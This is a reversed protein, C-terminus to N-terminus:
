KIDKMLNIEDEIISIGFNISKLRSYSSSKGLKKFYSVAVVIIMFLIFMGMLKVAAYITDASIRDRLQKLIETESSAISIMTAVMASVISNLIVLINIFTKDDEMVIEIDNKSFKFIRLDKKAKLYDMRKNKLYYKYIYLKIEQAKMQQINNKGQFEYSLIYEEDYSCFISKIRNFIRSFYSKFNYDVETEKIDKETNKFNKTNKINGKSKSNVKKSM